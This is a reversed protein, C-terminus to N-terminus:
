HRQFGTNLYAYRSVLAYMMGSQRLKMHGESLMEKFPSNKPVIMSYYQSTDVGLIQLSIEDKRDIRSSICNNKGLGISLVLCTVSRLYNSIINEQNASMFRKPKILEEIAAEISEAYLDKDTKRM